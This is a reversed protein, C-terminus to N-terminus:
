PFPNTSILLSQNNGMNKVEQITRYGWLSMAEGCSREVREVEESELEKLWRFPRSKSNRCTSSVGGRDHSTHANLFEQVNQNLPLGLFSLIKGSVGLTDLALDEYRVVMIKGPFDRSLELIAKYDSVLDGCLASSQSCDPHGPCWDREQRSQYIGRPDRVLTVVKLNLKANRLLSRTVNMRLRVTKMVQIPFAQCFQGLFDPQFCLPVKGKSCFQWLFTNHAFLEPRQHATKMYIDLDYFDCNFLKNVIRLAAAKRASTDSGRIQTVGFQLLPEYHYFTPLSSTLIEALFTSGSRWTSALLIRTPSSDRQFNTVQQTVNQLVTERFSSNGHSNSYKYFLTLPTGFLVSFFLLINVRQRIKWM